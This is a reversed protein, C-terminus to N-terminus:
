TGAGDRLVWQEGALELGRVEWNVSVECLSPHLEERARALTWDLYEKWLGHDPGPRGRDIWDSYNARDSTRAILFAPWSFRLMDQNIASATEKGWVAPESRYPFGVDKDPPTGLTPSGDTYGYDGSWHAAIDSKEILLLKPPMLGRKSLVASKAALAIAKPGVGIIALTKPPSPV